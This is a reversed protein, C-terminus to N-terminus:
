GEMEEWARPLAAVLDTVSMGRRGSEGAIEGARAHARVAQCTADFPTEMEALRAGIAGSLADGCGATAMGPHGAIGIACTGDPTAIIPTSTKFVAVAGYTQALKHAAEIPNKLLDSVECHLLRAAEAPHPTLVLQNRHRDLALQLAPKSAVLNLADADLVIPGTWAELFAALVRHAEESQGLGPGAVFADARSLIQSPNEANPGYATRGLVEPVEYPLTQAIEQTSAVTVMGAGSRLAASACLVAAGPYSSSGVLMAVRGASGKHANRPRPALRGRAWSADLATVAGPGWCAAPIGLDIVRVHGACARGPDLFLGTKARGFTATATAHVAFGRPLGTAGDLGSPLDLSLTSRDSLWQAAMLSNGSLDRSLGTGFLADVAYAPGPRTALEPWTTPELGLAKLRELQLHSLTGEPPHGAPLCFDPRFGDLLAHRVLALGDGGNAGPGCVVAFSGISPFLERFFAWAGLSAREMQLDVPLSLIQRAQAEAQRASEPTCLIM